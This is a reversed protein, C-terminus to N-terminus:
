KMNCGEADEEMRLEMRVDKRTRLAEAGKENRQEKKISHNQSDTIYSPNNQSITCPNIALSQLGLIDGISQIEPGCYNASGQPTTISRLSVPIFTSRESLPLLFLRCHHLWTARLSRHVKIGMDKLEVVSGPTKGDM